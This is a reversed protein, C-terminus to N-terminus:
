FTSVAFIHELNTAIKKRVRTYQIRSSTALKANNPKTRLPTHLVREQSGNHKYRYYKVVHAPQRHYIAEKYYKETLGSFNWSTKLPTWM